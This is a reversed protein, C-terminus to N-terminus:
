FKPYCVKALHIENNKQIVVPYLGITNETAAVAIARGHPDVALRKGLSQRTFQETCLKHQSVVQFRNSVPSFEIFSLMGSEGLLV